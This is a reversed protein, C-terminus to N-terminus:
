FFKNRMHIIEQLGQQSIFYQWIATMTSSAAHWGVPSAFIAGYFVEKAPSAHPLRMHVVKQLVDLAPCPCVKLNCSQPLYTNVHQKDM